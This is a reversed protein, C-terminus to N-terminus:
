SADDLLDDPSPSDIQEFMTSMDSADESLSWARALHDRVQAETAVLVKVELADTYLRVDDLAFVNTPDSTAVVVRTGERELLLLNIREAVVRPLSRVVDPSIPLQGLDTVDLGLAKALSEAIQRETAFGADIIVTGLRRRRRGPAVDAQLDLAHELQEATIVQQEVLVEGLQRRERRQAPPRPADSVPGGAM